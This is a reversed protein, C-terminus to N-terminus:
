VCRPQMGNCAADGSISRDIREDADKRRWDRCIFYHPPRPNDKVYRLHHVFVIPEVRLADYTTIAEMIPASRM